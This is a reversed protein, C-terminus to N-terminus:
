RFLVSFAISSNVNFSKDYSLAIHKSNDETDFQYAEKRIIIVRRFLRINVELALERCM